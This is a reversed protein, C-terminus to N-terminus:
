RVTPQQRMKLNSLLVAKAKEKEGKRLLELLLDLDLAEQWGDGDVKV